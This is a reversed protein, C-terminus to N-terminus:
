NAIEFYRQSLILEDQGNKPFYLYIKNRPINLIDLIQYALDVEFPTKGRIRNSLAAPSQGIEAAIEAQTLDAAHIADKLNKYM